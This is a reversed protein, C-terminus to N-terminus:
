CLVKDEKVRGCFSLSFMCMIAHQSFLLCEVATRQHCCRSHAQPFRVGKRWPVEKLYFEDLWMRQFSIAPIMGSQGNALPGNGWPVVETILSFCPLASCANPPDSREEAWVKRDHESYFVLDKGYGLSGTDGARRGEKERRVDGWVGRKEWQSQGCQGGQEKQFTFRGPMNCGWPRQRYTESNRVWKRVETLYRLLHWRAQSAKELEGSRFYM